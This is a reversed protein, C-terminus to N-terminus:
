VSERPIFPKSVDGRIKTLPTRARRV